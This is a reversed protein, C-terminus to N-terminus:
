GDPLTASTHLMANNLTTSSSTMSTVLQNQGRTLAISTVKVFQGSAAILRRRTARGRGDGWSSSRPPTRCDVYAKRTVTAQHCGFCDGTGPTTHNFSRPPANRTSPLTPRQTTHCPLCTGELDIRGAGHAYTGGLWSPDRAGSGGTGALTAASVTRPTGTSFAETAPRRLRVAVSTYTQARGRPRRRRGSAEHCPLVDEADHEWRISGGRGLLVM